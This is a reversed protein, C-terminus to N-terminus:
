VGASTMASWHLSASRQAPVRSQTLLLAARMISGRQKLGAEGLSRLIAPIVENKKSSFNYLM